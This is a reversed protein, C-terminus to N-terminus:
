WAKYLRKAHHGNAKAEQAYLKRGLEFAKRRLKERRSGIVELLEASYELSGAREGIAEALVALDHEDGLLDSLRKAEQRIPEIVPKWLGQLLRLHYRNYKVQKRWEHLTDTTPAERADDMARQCGTYIAELGERYAGFGKADVEWTTSRERAEAMRWVFDGLQGDIDMQQEVRDEVLAGRIPMFREAHDGNLKMLQDFAEVVTHSDRLDALVRAADRFAANETKYGGFAPRVLRLLARLEKCRKRADHVAADKTAESSRAAEVVDIAKGIREEAIRRIAAEPAEGRRIEFPM